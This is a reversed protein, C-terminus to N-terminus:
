ASSGMGSARALIWPVLAEVARRRLPEAEFLPEHLAGELAVLAKDESGALDFVARTTSPDAVPDLEPLLVLLPTHLESARRLVEAQARLSEDFFRPTATWFALPDDLMGRRTAEDSTLMEPTIGSKVRLWPLLAGVARASWVKFRSPRLALGFYPASLIAGPITRKGQLLATTLILGGLSHGLVFPPGAEEEIRAIMAELDQLYEGFSAIHGRRGPAEGHGRYDFLWTSIGRERLEGALERYRAGHDGYGHLILLHAREEPAAFFRWPLRQSGEGEIWGERPADKRMPM